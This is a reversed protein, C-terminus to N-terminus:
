LVIFSINLIHWVHKANFIVNKNYSIISIATIMICYQSPNHLYVCFSCRLNFLSLQWKLHM